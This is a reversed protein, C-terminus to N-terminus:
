AHGHGSALWGKRPLRRRVAVVISAIFLAAAAAKWANNMLFGAAQQGLHIGLYAEGFYRFSRGCLVVALFRHASTGTVGAFVVLAKLPVPIFPFANPIAITLLGYRQFWLNFRERRSHPIEPKLLLHGGFRAVYFLGYNGATAGLVAMAAAFYARKPDEIAITILWVDLIAPLPLGFSQLFGALFVGIPGYTILADAISKLM